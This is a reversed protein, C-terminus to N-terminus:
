DQIKETFLKSIIEMGSQIQYRVQNSGILFTNTVSSSLSATAQKIDSPIIKVV